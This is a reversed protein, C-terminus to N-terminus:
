SGACFLLKNFNQGDICSFNRISFIAETGIGIRRLESKYIM